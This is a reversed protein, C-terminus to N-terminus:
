RGRIDVGRGTRYEVGEREHVPSTAVGRDLLREEVRRYEVTDDDPSGGVRHLSYALEGAADPRQREVRAVADAQDTALRQGGAGRPIGRRPKGGRVHQDPVLTGTDRGQNM